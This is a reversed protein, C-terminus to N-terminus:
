CIGRLGRTKKQQLLCGMNINEGIEMNVDETIELM